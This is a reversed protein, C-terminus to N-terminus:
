VGLLHLPLYALSEAFIRKRYLRFSSKQRFPAQNQTKVRFIDKYPLHSFFFDFYKM